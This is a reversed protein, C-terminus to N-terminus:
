SYPFGIRCGECITGRVQWAAIRRRCTAYRRGRWVDALKERTLDGMISRQEWDACCQVMRGDVLVYIQERVRRCHTFERLRDAGSLANRIGAHGARNEMPQVGFRIGRGEWYRRADPIEAHTQPSDVMAIELVPRAYAGQARLDLFRDINRLTRELRLGMIRRYTEAQLSQVSLKLKDLGADLLGQAMRGTLLSGNSIIKVYQPKKRRATIYAIRQPLEPDLLPENMLYVSFRRVPLELCQDIVSRYVDWAMRQGPRIPRLTRGNPCFACRGNCGTVTQIQLHDPPASVAAAGEAVAPHFGPQM